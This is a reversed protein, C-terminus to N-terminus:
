LTRVSYFNWFKENPSRMATQVLGFKPSGKKTLAALFKVLCCSFINSTSPTAKMVTLWRRMGMVRSLEYNCRRMGDVRSAGYDEQGVDFGLDAM